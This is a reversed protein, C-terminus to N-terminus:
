LSPLFVVLVCRGRWPGGLDWYRTTAAAPGSRSSRLAVCIRGVFFDGAPGRMPLGIALGSVQSDELIGSPPALSRLALCCGGPSSRAPLNESEEHETNGVPWSGTLLILQAEDSSFPLKPLSIHCQNSACNTCDAPGILITAGPKAADVARQIKEYRCHRKCVTFEAGRHRHGDGPEEAASAAVVAPLALLLAVAPIMVRSLSHHISPHPSM